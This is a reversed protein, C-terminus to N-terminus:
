EEGVVVSCLRIVQEGRPTLFGIQFDLFLMFYSLATAARTDIFVSRPLTFTFIHLRRMWSFM